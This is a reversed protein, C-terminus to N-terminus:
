HLRLTYNQKKEEYYKRVEKVDRPDATEKDIEIHPIGNKDEITIGEYDEM